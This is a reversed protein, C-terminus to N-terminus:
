YVGSDTGDVITDTGRSDKAICYMYVM